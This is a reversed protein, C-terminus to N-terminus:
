PWARRRRRGANLVQGLTEGAVGDVIQEARKVSKMLCFLPWRVAGNGVNFVNGALNGASLARDAFQNVRVRKVIGRQVGDGIQLVGHGGRSLDDVADVFPWPVM